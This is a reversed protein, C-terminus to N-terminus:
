HRIMQLSNLVNELKIMQMDEGELDDLMLVVIQLYNYIKTVM